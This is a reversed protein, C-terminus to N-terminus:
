VACAGCDGVGYALASGCRGSTHRLRVPVGASRELALIDRMTQRDVNAGRDCMSARDIIATERLTESTVNVVFAALPAPDYTTLMLILATTAIM